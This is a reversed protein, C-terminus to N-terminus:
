HRARRRVATGHTQPTRAQQILDALEPPLTVETDASGVAAWTTSDQSPHLLTRWMWRPVPAGPAVQQAERKRHASLSEWWVAFQRGRDRAPLGSWWQAM